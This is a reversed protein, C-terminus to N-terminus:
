PKFMKQTMYYLIFIHSQYGSCNAIANQIIMYITIKVIFNQYNVM